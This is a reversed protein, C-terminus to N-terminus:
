INDNDAKSYRCKVFLFFINLSLSLYLCVSEHELTTKRHMEFTFKFLPDTTLSQM